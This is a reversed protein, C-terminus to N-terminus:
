NRYARRKLKWKGDSKTFRGGPGVALMPIDAKEKSGSSARLRALRPINGAVDVCM